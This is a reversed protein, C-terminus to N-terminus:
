RQKPDDNQNERTFLPSLPWFDKPETGKSPLTSQLYRYSRVEPGGKGYLSVFATGLVLSIISYGDLGLRGHCFRGGVAAWLEM